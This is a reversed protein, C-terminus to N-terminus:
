LTNSQSTKQIRNFNTLKSVEFLIQHSQILVQM